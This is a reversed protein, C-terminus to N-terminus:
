LTIIPAYIEQLRPRTKKGVWERARRCSRHHGVLRRGLRQHKNVTSGRTDPNDVYKNRYTVIRVFRKRTGNAGTTTHLLNVGGGGLSSIRVTSFGGTRRNLCTGVTKVINNTRTFNRTRHMSACLMSFPRARRLRVSLKRFVSTVRRFALVCSIYRSHHTRGHGTIYPNVFIVGTSPRHRGTVHTTCCVPSKASSICPGVKPVRGGILRVCSPYYSAAVFPRKRRLGRGLRTTRRDMASVTKRTIRIMSTFKVRHLTKCMTRVSAGFRKLVSPTPVTVVGRNDHVNRLISFTRSVRFVTKFPYTGLYGNYCVYGDRSVRRVNGRSGDVTGIPYTRRYPIPVFMVTRCPYDRRYGKYDVYTSRSVGTRKGGQFHVTSGPYGVCYDHTMYNHYLGAIRCGIRMYSSYTRSVIYLVGRGRGGGHRLTRHTCRSLPALRSARSAVSFNLLPFLGCGCM